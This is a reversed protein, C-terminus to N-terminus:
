TWGKHAFESHGIKSGFELIFNMYYQKVDCCIALILPFFIWDTLREQSRPSECVWQRDMGRQLQQMQETSGYVNSLM